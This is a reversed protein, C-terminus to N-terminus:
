VPKQTYTSWEAGTFITAGNDSIVLSANDDIIQRNTGTYTKYLTEPNVGYVASEALKLVNDWLGYPGPDTGRWYYWDFPLLPTGDVNEWRRYVISQAQQLSTSKYYSIDNFTVSPFLNIAGNYNSFDIPQDFNIGIVTWKDKELYPTLVQIGDQYFTLATYDARTSM